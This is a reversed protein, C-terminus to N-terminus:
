LRWIRLVVGFTGFGITEMLRKAVNEDGFKGFDYVVDGNLM